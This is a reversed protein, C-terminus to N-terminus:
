LHRAVEIDALEMVHRAYRYDRITAVQGGRWQVLVIFDPRVAEEVESDFGLVAPRGDIRGVGMRWGTIRDYNGFYTGVGRAGRMHTRGVLELRVDDVLLDRLGDFDRANFHRVYGALLRSEEADLDAAYGERASEARDRLAVRGRHFAGKIAPVSLDLVDSIEALTYDMVDKLIVCSRQLATLKLYHSLALEAREAADLPDAEDPPEPHDDLPEGFRRDYRRLFDIAKNHAIRFLWARLNGVASVTPLQYYAKALADQVVDEGDVASGTMRACYRYLEARIDRVLADFEARAEALVAPPKLDSV